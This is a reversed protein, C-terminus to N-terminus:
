TWGAPSPWTARWCRGSARRWWCGPASASPRRLPASPPSRRRGTLNSNPHTYIPHTTTLRHHRRTTDIKDVEVGVCNYVCYVFLGVWRELKLARLKQEALFRRAYLEEFVNEPRLRVAIPLPQAYVASYQQLSVITPQFLPPRPQGCRYIENDGAIRRGHLRTADAPVRVWEHPAQDFLSKYRGSVRQCTAAALSNTHFCKPCVWDQYGESEVDPGEKAKSRWLELRRQMVRKGALYLREGWNEEAGNTASFVAGDYNDVAYRGNVAGGLVARVRKLM